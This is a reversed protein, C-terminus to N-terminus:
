YKENRVGLSLMNLYSQTYVTYDTMTISLLTAPRLGIDVEAMVM